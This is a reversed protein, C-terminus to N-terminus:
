LDDTKPATDLPSYKKSFVTFTSQDTKKHRQILGISADALRWRLEESDFKAGFGNQMTVTEQVTPVGYKEIMANKVTTFDEENFTAFVGAFKSQGLTKKSGADFQSLYGSSDNASPISLIPLCFVLTVDANIGALTDQQSNNKGKTTVLVSGSKDISIFVDGSQNLAPYKKWVSSFVEGLEIGKFKTPADAAFLPCALALFLLVRKM